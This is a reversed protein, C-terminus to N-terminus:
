RRRKARATDVSSLVVATCSLIIVSAIIAVACRMFFEQPLARIIGDTRPNFIWNDKGPFFLKHFVVFARDFDMAILGGLVAFLGLTAGGAWGYVSFGLPKILKVKKLRKLVLVTATVATSILLVWGNLLFLLKCDEFHAQGEPSYNFVGVSFEGGPFILYDMLEDFSARIQEATFGTRDPLGLPEIQWYYFPRFYIPIGISITLIMLALSVGLVATAIVSIVRQKM